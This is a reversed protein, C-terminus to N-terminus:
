LILNEKSLKFSPLQKFINLKRLAFIMQANLKDKLENFLKFKTKSCNNKSKYKLDLNNLFMLEKNDLFM